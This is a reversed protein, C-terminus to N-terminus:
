HANTFTTLTRFAVNMVAAKRPPTKPPANEPHNKEECVASAALSKVNGVLGM